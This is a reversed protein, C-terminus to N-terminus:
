PIILGTISSVVTHTAECQMFSAYLALSPVLTARVISPQATFDISKLSCHINILLIKARALM